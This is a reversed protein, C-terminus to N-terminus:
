IQSYDTPKLIWKTIKSVTDAYQPDRSMKAWMPSKGFADWHKKHEQQNEASIMYTLHPLGQGTLAEGYFVPALGVQRMIEIEGDNFMDVKKAAKIESHSEYTRLEFMRETKNRSYEPLEMRPMGAFARMLWSDIREFAPADKGAELYDKVENITGARKLWETGRAFVDLDPYPILVFVSPTDKPETETFVGITKSGLKNLAPLAANKLFGHLLAADAGAKLRYARLEYYEQRGRPRAAASASLPAASLLGTVAISTKIFSRRKM